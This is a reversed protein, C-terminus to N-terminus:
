WSSHYTFSDTDVLDTCDSDSYFYSETRQYGYDNCFHYADDIEWVTKNLNFNGNVAEYAWQLLAAPLALAVSVETWSATAKLIRNVASMNISVSYPGDTQWWIWYPELNTPTHSVNQAYLSISSSSKDVALVTKNTKADYFYINQNLEYTYSGDSLYIFAGSESPLENINQAFVLHSSSFFLCFCLIITTIKAIKKM